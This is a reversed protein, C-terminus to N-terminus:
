WADRLYKMRFPKVTRRRHVALTNRTLHRGKKRRNDRSVEECDIDIIEVDPPADTDRVRAEIAPVTYLGLFLDQVYLEASQRTEADLSITFAVDAGAHELKGHVHCRM